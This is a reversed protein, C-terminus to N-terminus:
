EAVELSRTDAVFLRSEGNVMGTPMNRPTVRAPNPPQFCIRAHDPCYPLLPV